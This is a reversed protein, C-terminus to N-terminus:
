VFEEEERDRDRNQGLLKQLSNLVVILYVLSSILCVTQFDFFPLEFAFSLTAIIMGPFGAYIAVIFLKSFSIYSPVDRGTFLFVVTFFLAFVPIFFLITFLIDLFLLSLIVFLVSNRISGFIIPSEQLFLGPSFSNKEAYVLIGGTLLGSIKEPVPFGLIPFLLPYVFYNNRDLKIWGIIANPMWFIGQDATGGGFDFGSADKKDPFYDIRLNTINFIRINDIQITGPRDYGKLPFLGEKRFEVGGFKKELICCCKDVRERLPFFRLFVVASSCLLALLLFHGLTRYISNKILQSFVGPGACISLVTRLFGYKNM